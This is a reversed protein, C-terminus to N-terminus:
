ERRVVRTKISSVDVLEGTERDRVFTGGAERIREEKALQQKKSADLSTTEVVDRATGNDIVVHDLRRGTYTEPDLVKCGDCDLLESERQVSAGPYQQQLEVQQLLEREAGQEKYRLIAPSDTKLSLEGEEVMAQAIERRQQETLCQNHVWVRSTGVFYTHDEAVEFNYVTAAEQPPGRVTRVRLWGGRETFLHLGPVLEGAKVWGLGVVWFPHESTVGITETQGDWAELEIELVEQDPTVFTQVVERLQEEGTVDSRSMVLDGIEIEEIPRLGDSTLM